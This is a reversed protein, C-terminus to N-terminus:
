YIYFNMQGKIWLMRFVLLALIVVSFPLLYYDNYGKKSNKLLIIVPISLTFMRSINDFSRWYGEEAVTVQLFILLLPISFVLENISRINSFNLFLLIFFLFVPLKAFERFWGRIDMSGAWDFSKFFGFFPYDMLDTFGLPNTGPYLDPISRIFGNFGLFIAIPICVSFAVIFKRKMLFLLLVPLIIFLATERIFLGIFLFFIGIILPRRDIENRGSFFNGGGNEIFYIGIVAFSVMFSDSVLLLNSNMAFPSFLYFLSLNKNEGACRSRVLFYSIIHLANLLFLTIWSYLWFGTFKVFFGTILPFGIRSFRLYFSDLVPLTTLEPNYLFKSIFYFFQGDYGGDKFIVLGRELYPQNLKIFGDWIGILSNINYDYPRIKFLILVAELLLYLLVYISPHAQLTERVSYFTNRQM